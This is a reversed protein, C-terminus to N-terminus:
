MSCFPTAHTPTLLAYVEECLREEGKRHNCMDDVCPHVKIDLYKIQTVAGILKTFFYIVM